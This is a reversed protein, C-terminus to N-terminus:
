SKKWKISCGIAKTSTTELPKGAILQGVADEVYKRSVKEPENTNDDIAGAYKLILDGGEKNVLFVHPTKLAGFRRAVEQTEDYLYPFTFKKEAARVIMKEFSDDPAVAPDNPNIAVVPYGKSKYAQDLAIIRDEYAVSFPCHNCTFILIFGKSSPFDNLSLQKGDINKLTFGQVKDGPKYGQVIDTSPAFFMLFTFLFTHIM